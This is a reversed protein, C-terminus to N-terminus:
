LEEVERSLVNLRHVRIKNDKTYAIFRVFNVEDGESQYIGETWLTNDAQAGISYSEGTDLFYISLGCGALAVFANNWSILGSDPNGYISAVVIDPLVSQSLKNLLYADEHIAYLRFAENEFLIRDSM